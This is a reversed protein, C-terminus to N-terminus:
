LRMLTLLPPRLRLTERISAWLHTMRDIAPVTLSGSSAGLVRSQEAVLDAQLAPDQRCM